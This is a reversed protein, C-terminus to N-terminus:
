RKELYAECIKKIAESRNNMGTALIAQEIKEVDVSAFLMKIVPSKGKSLGGLGTIGEMGGTNTIQAEALRELEGLEAADFGTFLDTEKIEELLTPVDWEAFTASKNVAVRFAKVEEDTMDDAILVPVHTYKQFIAAKLRLHGDILEGSSRVLLPYRFGYENLVEAMREVASDNKRPNKVYPKLKSVPWLLIKSNETLSKERKM